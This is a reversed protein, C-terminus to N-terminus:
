SIASPDSNFQVYMRVSPTVLIHNKVLILSNIHLFYWGAYALCGVFETEHEETVESVINNYM